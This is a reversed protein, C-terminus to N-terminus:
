LQQEKDSREANDFKSEPTLSSLHWQIPQSRGLAKWRGWGEVKGGEVKGLRGRWGLNEKRGAALHLWCYGSGPFSTVIRSHWALCFIVDCLIHRNLPLYCSIHCNVTSPDTITMPIMARTIMPFLDFISFLLQLTREIGCIFPEALLISKSYLRLFWWICIVFFYEQLRYLM